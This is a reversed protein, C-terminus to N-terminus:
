VIVSIRIEHPSISGRYSQAFKQFLPLFTARDRGSLVLTLVRDNESVYAVQELANRNEGSQFTYVPAQLKVYPLSLPVEERVMGAKLRRKFGAIDSQIYAKADKTEENPGILASSIYIWVSPQERGSGPPVFYALGPRTTRVWGKPSDIALFGQETLLMEPPQAGDTSQEALASGCFYM